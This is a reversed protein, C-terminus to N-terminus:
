TAIDSVAEPEAVVGAAVAVCCLLCGRWGPIVCGRATDCGMSLCGYKTVQRHPPLGARDPLNPM